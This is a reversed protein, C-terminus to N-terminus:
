QMFRLIITNTIKIHSQHLKSYYWQRHKYHHKDTSLITSPTTGNSSQTDKSSPHKSTCPTTGSGGSNDSSSSGSQTDKSSPHKGYVFSNNNLSINPVIVFVMVIILLLLKIDRTKNQNKKNSYKIKILKM